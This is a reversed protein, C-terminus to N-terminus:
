FNTYDINLLHFQIDDTLGNPFMDQKEESTNIDETAYRSLEIFSNLYENMTM